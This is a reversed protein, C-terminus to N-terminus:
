LEDERHLRDHNCRSRILFTVAPIILCEGQAAGHQGFVEWVDDADKM